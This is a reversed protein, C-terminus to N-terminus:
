PHRWVAWATETGRVQHCEICDGGPEHSEQAQHCVLCVNRQTAIAEVEPARHCGAGSCTLHVQVDHAGAAPEVHCSACRAEATHHEDHCSSCPAAPTLAPLAQHCRECSLGGHLGHDFALTRTRPAGWVEMYLQQTTTVAPQSEHCQQCTLPQDAGHHCSQCDEPALAMVRADASARHCDACSLDRHSDHGPPMDHCVACDIQRHADHPFSEARTSRQMEDPLFPRLGTEPAPAEQEVQAAAQVPEVEAEPSEAQGCALVTLSLLCAAVGM